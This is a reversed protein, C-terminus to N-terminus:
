RETGTLQGRAQRVRRHIRHVLGSPELFMLPCAGDVVTLGLRACAKVAEPSSAGPAGLGKFLWIHTVGAAAADNIASMAAQRNLMIVAGEVPWPVAALSTYAKDGAVTGGSRNIAVVQHGHDRLAKYVTHGFNNQNDSAGIVALHRLNLFAEISTLDAM